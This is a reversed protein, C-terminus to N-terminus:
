VKAASVHTMLFIKASIKGIKGHLQYLNELQLGLLHHYSLQVKVFQSGEKMLSEPLKAGKGKNLYNLKARGRRKKGKETTSASNPLVEVDHQVDNVQINQVSNSGGESIRIRENEERTAVVNLAKKARKSKKYGQNSSEGHYTM